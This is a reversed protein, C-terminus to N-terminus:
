AYVGRLMIVETVRRIALMFAAIRMTTGHEESMRLVDSFAGRMIRELRDNVDSEPWYYGM